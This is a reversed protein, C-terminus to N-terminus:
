LFFIDRAMDLVRRGWDVVKMLHNGWILMEVFPSHIPARWVVPNGLLGALVGKPSNITSDRSRRRGTSPTVDSAGGYFLLFLDAQATELVIMVHHCGCAGPHRARGHEAVIRLKAAGPEPSLIFTLHCGISVNQYCRIAADDCRDWVLKTLVLLLMLSEILITPRIDDIAHLITGRFLIDRDKLTIVTKCTRWIRFSFVEGLQILVRVLPPVAAAGDIRVDVELTSLATNGVWAPLPRDPHGISVTGFVGLARLLLTRIQFLM